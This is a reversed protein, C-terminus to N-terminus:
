FSFTSKMMMPLRYNGLDRDAIDDFVDGHIWFKPLFMPPVEVVDLDWNLTAAGGGRGHLSLQANRRENAVQDAKFFNCQCYQVGTYISNETKDHAFSWATHGDQKWKRSLALIDDTWIHCLDYSQKWPYHLMVLRGETENSFLFIGRLMM